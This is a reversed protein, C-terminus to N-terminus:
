AESNVLISSLLLSDRLILSVEFLFPGFCIEDLITAIQKGNTNIIDGLYKEQEMLDMKHPESMEDTLNEFGTKASHNDQPISTARM